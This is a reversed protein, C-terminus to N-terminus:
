SRRAEIVSFMGQTHIVREVAFGSQALLEGFERATRERGSLMVLMNMDMLTVPSPGPEDPMVMEVLLVRADPAAARHVSRLIEVCRDDPWDHLISKLVYLDGDAPVSEFFNGAALEIREDSRGSARVGEIVDPRDFIIGRAGPATDLLGRLLVGESGGVDVILKHGAASYARAVDLAAFASLNSMARAFTRGEEQNAAYYAWPDMGLTEQTMSGGKRVADALKGWPLWHGPATEAVIFDRVSGPVNSRLCEGVPTLAFRKPQTEVLLGITVCARLLRHLASANAGTERALDESDHVGSAIFDPVGLQAAASAIQASWMHMIFQLAQIPPPPASHPQSPSEAPLTEVTM